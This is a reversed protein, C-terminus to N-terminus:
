TNIDPLIPIQFANKRGLADKVTKGIGYDGDDNHGEETKAGQPNYLRYAAVNHTASMNQPNLMLARYLERVDSLRYAEAARAVFTCGDVMKTVEVFKTELATARESDNIYLLEKPTPCPLKERYLDGNVYLSTGVIKTKVNKDKTKINNAIEGLEKRKERIEAPYQPTIKM